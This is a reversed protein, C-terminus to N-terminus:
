LGRGKRLHVILIKCDTLARYTHKPLADFQIAEGEGLTYPEDNIKIEIKGSLVWCIEFDNHHVEPKTVAQGGMATGLFCQLNNFNIHQFQFGGSTYHRSSAKQTNRPEALGLLDTATTGFIKGIRHLTPLEPVAQNREIRSIVATSIGSAKAVDAITMGHNKRLDRLIRFDYELMNGDKM